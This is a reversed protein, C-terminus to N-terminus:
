FNREKPSESKGSKRVELVPKNMFFCFFIGGVCYLAVDIWDATYKLSFWPLIGEFVVSVYVVIFIVHWVSLVYYNSKYIFVRQFWLGLNAIVPIAFADTLFGNIYPLPHGTKRLIIVILWILCGALFWPNLLTKM